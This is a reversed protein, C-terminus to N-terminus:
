RLRSLALPSVHRGPFFLHPSRPVVCLSPFMPVSSPFLVCPSVCVCLFLSVCLPVRYVLELVFSVLVCSFEFCQDFPGLVMVSLM